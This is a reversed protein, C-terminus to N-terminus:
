WNSCHSCPNLQVQPLNGFWVNIKERTLDSLTKIAKKIVELPYCDALLQFEEEEQCQAIDNSIEAISSLYPAVNASEKARQQSQQAVELAQADRLLWQEYIEERRDQLPIPQGNEDLVYRTKFKKREEPNEVRLFDPAPSSYYRIQAGRKGPRSYNVMRHGITDLIRQVVRLANKDDKVLKTLNIGLVENINGPYAKARQFIDVIVPHENHFGSGQYLREIGLYDLCAVKLQKSKRNCDVIFYDGLGNDIAKRYTNKDKFQLYKRGREWYYYLEIRPYWKEDDKKILEPSCKVQYKDQINAKRLQHLQEVTKQNQRELKEKEAPLLEKSSTVNDCYKDYLEDRLNSVETEVDECSKKDLFASPLPCFASAIGEREARSRKCADQPHVTPTTLAAHGYTMDGDTQVCCASRTARRFLFRRGEAEQRRGEEIKSKWPIITHGELELDQTITQDYNQMGSNIIAGLKAWTLLCTPSFNGDEPMAEFDAEILKQRNAKDLRKQSSVLGKFNTSGNGVKVIGKKQLWIYRDISERVRSLTQRASDCTQLGQGIYFVSDFRNKIAKDPDAWPEFYPEVSCGTEVVPSALILDYEAFSQNPNEMCGFAPHNPDGVAESDVRLVKLEPFLTKFHKELVQTGWRSKARQGTVSMFLRKGQALQKEAELVLKSPNKGDFTYIDWSDNEFEYDNVLLFRKPSFGLLGEIFDIAIDNLDADALFIKGGTAIIHQLLERLNKLIKVRDKACTTSTLVHWMIQQIEDLFLWAGSWDEPKIRAQSDPRLSDICMALGYHRGEPLSGSESVYPIGMRNANQSSLQIRHTVLLIRREGTQLIPKTLHCFWWTKGTKKPAKVAILQADAPPNIEGLRPRSIVMDPEYTLKRLRKSQWQQFNLAKRHLNSYAEDKSGRDYFGALYDDIGKGFGPKWTIVKVECKSQILLWSLNTIAVDVNRVTKRKSDQDFGMYFKRGKQCFEKLQPILIRQCNAINNEDKISRYFNFIGPAGIAVYGCSIISATKKVGETLAIPIQPNDKVWEWFIIPNDKVERYNEPLDTDYRRGILQWTAIPVSILFLETSEHEPHHYKQTSARVVPVSPNDKVWDWFINPDDQVKEWSPFTEFENYQSSAVQKWEEFEPTPYSVLIPQGKAKAQQYEDSNKPVTRPSNPKFCGWNSGITQFWWGGDDLHEYKRLYKAALKGTNTRELKNSYLLAEWSEEGTLSKLNQLTIEPSISSGNVWEEWHSKSIGADRYIPPKLTSTNATGGVPHLQSPLHGNNHNRDPQKISNTNQSFKM